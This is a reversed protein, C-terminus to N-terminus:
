LKKKANEAREMDKKFRTEDAAANSDERRFKEFNLDRMKADIEEYQQAM